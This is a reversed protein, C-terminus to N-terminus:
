ATESVYKELSVMQHDWGQSNGEFLKARRALSIRDFGSEIITVLTGGEAEDLLFEVLTQPEISYDVGDEPLGPHWRWAFRREPEISDVTLFFNKGKYEPHEVTMQLRVGPAFEGEFTVGFWAAFEKPTTIARWVRSRPARLIKRREIRSMQSAATTM